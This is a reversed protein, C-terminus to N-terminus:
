SPAWGRLEVTVAARHVCVAAVLPSLPWTLLMRSLLRDADFLGYRVM